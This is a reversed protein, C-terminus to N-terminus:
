WALSRSFLMVLGKTCRLNEFGRVQDSQDPVALMSPITKGAAVTEAAVSGPHALGAVAILATIALTRGLKSSFHKMGFM